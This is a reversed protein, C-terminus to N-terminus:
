LTDTGQLVEYYFKVTDGYNEVSVREDTGHVRKIDPADLRNFLFRFVNKSLKSFYRSDTAGVVLYPTVVMGEDQAVARISRKVLAFSKSSADSVPSPNTGFSEGDALVDVKVREDAVKQIVAAKVTEVTEGPYIRFNVIAKAHPPLVNAKVGGDIMTFATTTRVSAAMPPKSLLVGEVIPKFLWLNAFPVRRLFPMKPAVNEFFTRSHEFRAPFQQEEVRRVAAALVGVATHDPPMSSHGGEGEVSLELSVYGKEAVGVTAIPVSVAPVVNTIIAGGEDLVMELKVGRKELLNAIAQAGQRGGIEEDHGFVFYITRKPRFGKALLLESAELLGVVGSKVDLTGRGWIFGGDIKGAFPPHSWDALADPPVPVVDLHAMMVVGPLKPDSGTWEYLLSLDNVTEKKMTQHAKPFSKELYAHLGLFAERDIKDPDQHSVTEFRLAGALRAAASATDVVAVSAPPLPEVEATFMATRGFVVAAVVVLVVLAVKGLRKM